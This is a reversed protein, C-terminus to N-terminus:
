LRDTQKATEKDKKTETEIKIKKLKTTEEDKTNRGINKSDGKRNRDRKTDGRMEQRNQRDATEKKTKTTQKNQNAKNHHRQLKLPSM